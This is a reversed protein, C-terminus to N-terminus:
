YIYFTVKSPKASIGGSKDEVHSPQLRKTYNDIYHLDIENKTFQINDKLNYPYKTINEPLQITLLLDYMRKDIQQLENDEEASM